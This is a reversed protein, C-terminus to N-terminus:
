APSGDGPPFTVRCIAMAYRIRLMDLTTATSLNGWPELLQRYGEENRIHRGRDSAMMWKSLIPQADFRCPDISVFTGGPRLVRRLLSGLAPIVEDPLHHLVGFAFATDFPGTLADAHQLDVCLFQGRSGYTRRAADIYSPSIDFGTYRVGDPIFKLSAGVGCGVDLLQQGPRPRVQETIFRRHCGPAGIASQYVDFAAPVWLTADALRRIM